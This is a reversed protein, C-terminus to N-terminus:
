RESAINLTKTIPSPKVHITGNVDTRFVASGLRSLVTLIGASPHGYRNEAGVGILAVEPGVAQLFDNSSSFKSGHHGVKLINASLKEEKSILYRELNSGADGVLLMTWDKTEVKEVLSTDNLEGSEIIMPDPSLIRIVSEGQKISDGAGLVIIPINRKKIEGLLANWRIRAEGEPTRGNIIFTGFKYRALLHSFGGFHDLQPHSIIAIDIYSGEPLESRIARLISSDPGGDTMIRAGSDFQVLSSDGQGVDFFYVENKSSGTETFIRNWLFVDFVFFTAVFIIGLTNNKEAYLDM